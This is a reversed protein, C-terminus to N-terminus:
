YVFSMINSWPIFASLPGKSVYAGVTDVMDLAVGSVDKNLLREPTMKFEIIATAGFTINLPNTSAAVTPIVTLTQSM